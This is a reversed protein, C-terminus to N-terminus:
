EVVEWHPLRLVTGNETKIEEWVARVPLGISVRDFTRNLVNGTIRVDPFDDLSVLVVASPVSQSLKPHAPHDFSLTHEEAPPLM